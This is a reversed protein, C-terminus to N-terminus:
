RAFFTDDDDLQYTPPASPKKEETDAETEPEDAPESEEESVDDVEAQERIGDLIEEESAIKDEPGDDDLLFDPV